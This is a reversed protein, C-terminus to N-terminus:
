TAPLLTSPVLSPPPTECGSGGGGIILALGPPLGPLLGPWDRLFRRADTPPEDFSGPVGGGGESWEETTAPASGM